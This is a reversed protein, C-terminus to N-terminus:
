RQPGKQNGGGRDAEDLLARLQRREEATLGKSKVLHTLLPSLSGKCFREALRGLKRGLVEERALAAAFVHARAERDRTVLGKDELRLLLSQVTAYHSFTGRPYLVGTIQRTTRPGKKWLVELIALETETIDQPPCAM